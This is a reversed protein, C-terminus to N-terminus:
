AEVGRERVTEYPADPELPFLPVRRRRYRFHGPSDATVGPTDVLITEAAIPDYAARPAVVGKVVIVQKSEPRIGLSLIQQLSFPAMRRSTLVVTHRERTEVVATVGQNNRGWGGHRVETEEFIGDSLTRVTGAIRVPNGHLADTKGGVALEVRSAVGAEVCQAAAAPDFLVVLANPIGQRLIEDLLVTSDGPSGGGVNDGVDMLVVPHRPSQKARSVAEVADPLRQVFERRREWARQAMWSAARRAIAVDSDAVALFAAGMEEVDAYYFGLAVSASLVGSEGLMSELDAYLGRAPQQTTLQQSIQIVMPPKELWQVPRVEGRLTKAMLRAAEVGREKQDLHPNTRYAILADSHEAMRSSVNAHLDLTAIFPKPRPLSARLAALIEGDADWHGEAVTAGHLAVLLGDLPGAARRAEMLESVLRGFGEATITGGPVAYSAFLPVCEVGEADLGEIIGSLEHRGGRWRDIMQKGRTLDTAAFDEYRTPTSLFTNSEHLFGAVGVRFTKTM